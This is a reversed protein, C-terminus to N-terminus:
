EFFNKYGEREERLVPVNEASESTILQAEENGLLFSQSNKEWDALMKTANDYAVEKNLDMEDMASQSVKIFDKIAGMKQESMEHVYELHREFSEMEPSGTLFKRAARIGKYAGNIGELRRKEVKIVSNNYIVIARCRESVKELFKYLLEMTKYLSRLEQNTETFGQVEVSKAAIEATKNSKKAASMLGMDQQIDKENRKINSIVQEMRSGLNSKQQDVEDAYDKLDDNDSELQGIPDIQTYTRAILRSLGIFVRRTTKSFLIKILLLAAVGLIITSILNQLLVMIVPLLFILGFVGGVIFIALLWMGPSGEKKEWFSKGKFDDPVKALYDM